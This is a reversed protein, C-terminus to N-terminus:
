VREQRRPTSELFDNFTMEHLTTPIPKRDERPALYPRSMCGYRAEDAAHDEAKTDLDEPRDPDHQLLPVTRIFDKCTSFVFLGPRGDTGKM